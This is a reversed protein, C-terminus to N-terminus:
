VEVEFEQGLQMSHAAAIRAAAESGFIGLAYEVPGTSEPVDPDDEIIKSLAWECRGNFIYPKMKFKM